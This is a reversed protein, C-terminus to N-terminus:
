ILDFNCLQSCVYVKFGDTSTARQIQNLELKLESM